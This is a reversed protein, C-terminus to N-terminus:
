CRDENDFYVTGDFLSSISFGVKEKDRIDVRAMTIEMLSEAIDKHNIHLLVSVEDQFVYLENDARYDLGLSSDMLAKKFLEEEKATILSYSAKIRDEDFAKDKM